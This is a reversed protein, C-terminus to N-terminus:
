SNYCWVSLSENLVKVSFDWIWHLPTKKEEQENSERSTKLSFTERSEPLHTATVTLSQGGLEAAGEELDGGAQVKDGDLVDEVLRHPRRPTGSAEVHRGDVQVLVLSQQVGGGEGGGAVLLQGGGGGGLQHGDLGGSSLAFPPGGRQGQEFAELDESSSRTGGPPPACGDCCRWYLEVLHPPWNGHCCSSFLVKCWYHLCTLNIHNQFLNNHTNKNRTSKQIM